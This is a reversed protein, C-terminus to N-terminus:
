QTYSAFSTNRKCHARHARIQMNSYENFEVRYILVSTVNANYYAYSNSINLSNLPIRVLTLLLGHVGGKFFCVRMQM